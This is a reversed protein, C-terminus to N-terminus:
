PQPVTVGMQTLIGLVGGNPVQEVEYNILKDGRAKVRVHEKPNTIKRGTAPIRPLGPIPLALEGTNTGNLQVSGEATGDDGGTAVYNFRLDPMAKALAQHVGLWEAAGIPQPTAGSFKFDEALLSGALAWDQDEIAKLVKQTVQQANM